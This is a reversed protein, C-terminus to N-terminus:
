VTDERLTFLPKKGMATKEAYLLRRICTRPISSHVLSSWGQNMCVKYCLATPDLGDERGGLHANPAAPSHQPTQNPPPTVGKKQFLGEHRYHMGHVNWSAALKGFCLPHLARFMRGLLGSNGLRPLSPLFTLSGGQACQEQSHCRDGARVSAWSCTPEQTTHIRGTPSCGPCASGM